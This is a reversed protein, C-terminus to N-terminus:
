RSGRKLAGILVKDYAARHEPKLGARMEFVHVLTERQLNAAAQEVQRTAAEVQPSWTPSAAIANALHTNATRLQAEIEARRASFARERVDLAAKEQSDLPVAEHLMQHLDSEGHDPGHWFIALLAAGAIGIVGGMVTSAILRGGMRAM